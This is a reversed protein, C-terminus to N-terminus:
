RETAHRYVHWGDRELAKRYGSAALLSDFRPTYFADVTTSELFFRSSDELVVYATGPSEERWVMAIHRRAAMHNLLYGPAGVSATDPVSALVTRITTSYPNLRARARLAWVPALLVCVALMALPAWRRVLGAIPAQVSGMWTLTDVAAFLMVIAPAVSYHMRIQFLRSDYAALLIMLLQPLAVLTLPSGFPLLGLVPVLLMALYQIPVPAVIHQIVQAPHSLVARVIETPTAGWQAYTTGLVSPLAGGDSLGGAVLRGLVVGGVGLAVLPLALSRRRPDPWSVLGLTIVLLANDERVMLLACASWLATTRQPANWATLLLTLPLVALAQEHFEMFTQLVITPTLLFALLLPLAASPSLTRAVYRHFVLGAVAIAITAVGHVGHMSPWLRYLPVFLYLVPSFHVSLHHLGNELPSRLGHGHAANWLINEFMGEDASREAFAARWVGYWASCAIAYVTCLTAALRDHPSRNPM